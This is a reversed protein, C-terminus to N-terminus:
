RRFRYSSLFSVVAIHNHEHTFGDRRLINQYMYGFELRGIPGFRKGVSIYARNQDYHAAGHNSGFGIFLENQLGIFYPGRAPVETRYFYRFRNQYRYSTGLGIWRQELRFRHSMVLQRWKPMFQLQQWSRHEALATHNQTMRVHLYGQSVFLNDRLYFNVGPRLLVHRWSTFLDDRLQADFHVGWRGALRHDGFYSAWARGNVEASICPATFLFLLFFIL